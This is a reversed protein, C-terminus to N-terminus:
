GTAGTTSTGRASASWVINDMRLRADHLCCTVRIGARGAEVTGRENRWRRGGGGWAPVRSRRAGERVRECERVPGRAAERAGEPDGRGREAAGAEPGGDSIRAPGHHDQGPDGAAHKRHVAAGRGADRLARV